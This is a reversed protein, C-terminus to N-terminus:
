EPEQFAVLKEAALDLDGNYETLLDAVKMYKLEQPLHDLM